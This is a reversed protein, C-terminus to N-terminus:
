YAIRPMSGIGIFAVSNSLLTYTARTINALNYLVSNYSPAGTQKDNNGFQHFLILPLLIARRGSNQLLLYPKRNGGVILLRYHIWCIGRM